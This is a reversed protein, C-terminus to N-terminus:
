PPLVPDPAPAPAQVTLTYLQTASADRGRPSSVTIAYDGSKLPVQLISEEGEGHVADATGIVEAVTRGGKGAKLQQLTLQLDVGRLASVRVNVPPSGADVHFRFVDVDKRPWITGTLKLPLAVPQAHEVDDNPEKDHTGDDLALAATLTYPTSRDEGDRTSTGGLDRAASELKVLVDGVPVGVSPLLEGERVGGENARALLKPKGEPTAGPLWVSLELDARELPTVEVRLLGPADAHLRYWDVDGPGSLYGTRKGALPTARAPEGNPELELNEPGSELTATLTYPIQPRVARRAKEGKAAQLLGSRVVL